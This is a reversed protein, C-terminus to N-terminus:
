PSGRLSRIAAALDAAGFVATGAVIVNAGARIAERATEPTIGGDVEIDLRLGRRDVLRRLEEIKPLVARIFRQGGFGPNVTMMLALDAEELVAEIDKLPTSPNLSV